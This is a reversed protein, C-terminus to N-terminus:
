RQEEGNSDGGAAASVGDDRRGGGVCRKGRVGALLDSNKGSAAEPALLGDELAYFTHDVGCGAVVAAGRGSGGVVLDGGFGRLM